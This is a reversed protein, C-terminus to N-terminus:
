ITRLSDLVLLYQAAEENPMIRSLVTHKVPVGDKVAVKQSLDKRLIEQRLRHLDRKFDFSYNVWDRNVSVTAVSLPM